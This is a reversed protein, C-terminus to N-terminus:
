SRGAKGGGEGNVMFLTRKCGGCRAVRGPKPLGDRVGKRGCGPCVFSYRVAVSDKRIYLPPQQQGNGASNETTM